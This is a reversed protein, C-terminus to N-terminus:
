VKYEKIKAQVKARLARRIKNREKKYNNREEQIATTPLGVHEDEGIEGLMWELQKALETAIFNKVGATQNRNTRLSKVVSLDPTDMDDFCFDNDFRSEIDTPLKLTVNTDSATKVNEQSHGTTQNNTSM